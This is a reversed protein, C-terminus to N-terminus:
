TACGNVQCTLHKAREECDVHKSLPWSQSRWNHECDCSATCYRFILQCNLLNRLRCFLVFTSSCVFVLVAIWIIPTLTKWIGGYWLTLIIRVRIWFRHFNKGRVWHFCWAPSSLDLVRVVLSNTNAYWLLSTMRRFRNNRPSLFCHFFFLLCVMALFHHFYTDSPFSHKALSSPRKVKPVNTGPKVCSILEDNFISVEEEPQPM